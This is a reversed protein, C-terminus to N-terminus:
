HSKSVGVWDAVEHFSAVMPLGDAANQELVDKHVFVVQPTCVVGIFRDAFRFDYNDGLPHKQLYEVKARWANAYNRCDSAMNRISAYDGVDYQDTYLVSKCSVLLLASGSEGIADIDTLNRGNHTLTRGRLALM